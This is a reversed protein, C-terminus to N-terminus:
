KRKGKLKDKPAPKPKRAGPEEPWGEPEFWEQNVKPKLIVAKSEDPKPKKPKM